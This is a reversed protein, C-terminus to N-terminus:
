SEPVSGFVFGCCEFTLGVKFCSNTMWGSDMLLRYYSIQEQRNSKSARLAARMREEECPELQGHNSNTRSARLAARKRKANKPWPSKATMDAEPRRHTRRGLTRTGLLPTGPIHVTGRTLADAFCDFTRVLFAFARVCTRVSARACPRLCARVCPRM